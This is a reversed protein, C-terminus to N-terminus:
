LNENKKKQNSLDDILKMFDEPGINKDIMKRLAIGYTPSTSTFTKLDKIPLTTDYKRLEESTTGLVKALKKFLEDSPHRRGLEVDSLFAASCGIKEALDRLSLDKIERLERVKEGFKM